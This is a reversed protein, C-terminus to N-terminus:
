SAGSGRGLRTEVQNWVDRASARRHTPVFALAYRQLRAHETLWFYVVTLLTLVSMVAGAITVGVAVIQDGQPAVDARPLSRVAADVVSIVARGLAAPELTKAWSRVNDFFPPLAALTEGAQRVALPVIVFALAVVTALFVGYVLLISAGRGLHLRARLWGVIPQLGAALIVAVFMLVLVPGAAWAFGLVGVVLAVGIALGAGRVIWPALGTM